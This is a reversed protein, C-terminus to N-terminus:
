NSSPCCVSGPVAGGVIDDLEADSIQEPTGPQIDPKDSTDTTAM